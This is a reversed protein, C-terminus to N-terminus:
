ASVLSSMGFPDSEYGMVSRSTLSARWQRLLLQALPGSSIGSSRHFYTASTTQVGNAAM